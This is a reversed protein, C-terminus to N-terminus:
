GEKQASVVKLSDLNVEGKKNKIVAFEKLNIRMEQLHVKGKFIPLLNYDVYVEPMTLMVEDPYGKPNFLTLSKIGVLTRVIGVNLSKMKLPLGTVAEVGAEVAAKVVMNKVVSLVLLIAIVSIIVVVPKKM